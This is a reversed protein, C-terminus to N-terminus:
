CSSFKTSTILLVAPWRIHLQCDCKFSPHYKASEHASFGGLYPSIDFVFAIDLLQYTDNFITSRSQHELAGRCTTNRQEPFEYLLARALLQSGWKLAPRKVSLMKLTSRVVMSVGMFVEFGDIFSASAMQARETANVHSKGPTRPCGM